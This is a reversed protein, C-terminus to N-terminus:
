SVKGSVREREREREKETERERERACEYVCVSWHLYQPEHNKNQQKCVKSINIDSKSEIKSLYDDFYFHKWNISPMKKLLHFSMKFDFSSKLTFNKWIQYNWTFIRM